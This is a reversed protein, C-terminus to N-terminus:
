LSWEARGRHRKRQNREWEERRSQEDAIRNVQNEGVAHKDRPM